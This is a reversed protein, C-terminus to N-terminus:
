QWNGTRLQEALRTARAGVQTAWKSKLLEASAGAYDGAELLTLTNHFGLLGAFGINFGVNILVGQRADNLNSFWPLQSDLQSKVATVDNQLLITAEDNSIGRDTLNRGVGITLKGVSDNYPFLRLGEDRRLQECIDM